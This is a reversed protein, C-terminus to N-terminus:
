KRGRPRAKAASTKATSEPKWPVPRDQRVDPGEIDPHQTYGLTHLQEKVQGILEKFSVSKKQHRLLRTICYTFAGYSHTGHRYEMALEDKGCAKLLLPQFPGYPNLPDVGKTERAASSRHVRVKSRGIKGSGLSKSARLSIDSVVGASGTKDTTAFQERPVWM